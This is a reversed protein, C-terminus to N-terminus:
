KRKGLEKVKKKFDECNYEQGNLLEEAITKICAAYKEIIHKAREDGQKILDNVTTVGIEGMGYTNIMENAIMKSHEFDSACGTDCNGLLVREAARGAMSVVIDNKMEDETWNLRESRIKVRGLSAANTKISINVIDDVRDLEYLAFAHGLEHYATRIRDKKTINKPDVLKKRDPDTAIMEGIEPVDVKDIKNYNKNDYERGARKLVIKAIVREVFRANGFTPVPKFYEILEEVKKLAGKTVIFGAENMKENFIYMLQETTYNEFYFTDGIRSPIGPNMKLFRDMEDPYGAFIFITDDRHDVMATILSEIAEVGAFGADALFYAEDIFLIGGKAKKIFENIAKSTNGVIDKREVSVLHNTKLIGASYLDDALKRAVTTKGTGPNGKFVMHMFSAPVNNMGKKKLMYFYKAKAEYKKIQERIQELGTMSEISSANKQPMIEIFHKECFVKPLNIEGQPDKQKLQYREDAWVGYLEHVLNEMDRGNGYYEQVMRASICEELIKNANEDLEFGMENCKILFIKKLEPVTYDDFHIHHGIRSKIGPNSKIVEEMEAEYGAMIVVLKDKYDEMAKMLVIIADSAGDSNSKTLGYAEDIFLVGGMAEEIKTNTKPGSNGKYVSVLDMATVITMKRTPLVGARYLLEATLRGITTKGTGPNGYFVMHNSQAKKNNEKAIQSTYIKSFDQKVREMGPFANIEALVDEITRIDSRYHPIFEPTLVKDGTKRIFYNSYVRNLLDIVFDKGKLDAEAYITRIYTELAPFFEDSIAFSSQQFKDKCKRIVRDVSMPPIFIRHGFIRYNLENNPKFTGRYVYESMGIIFTVSPNQKIYDVVSQWFINYAEVQKASKERGAGTGAEDNIVPKMKCSHIFVCLPPYEDDEAIQEMSGIRIGQEETLSYTRPSIEMTETLEEVFSHMTKEDECMLLLNYYTNELEKCATDEEGRQESLHDKFTLFDELTKMGGESLGYEKFREMDDYMHMNYFESKKFKSMPIVPFYINVPREDIEIIQMCMEPVLNKELQVQLTSSYRLDKKEKKSKLPGTVDVSYTFKYELVYLYGHDDQNTVGIFEIHRNYFTFPDVPYDEKNYDIVYQNLLYDTMQQSDIIIKGAIDAIALLRM